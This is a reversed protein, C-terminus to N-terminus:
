IVKGTEPDRRQINVSVKSLGIGCVGVSINESLIQDKLAEDRIRIRTNSTYGGPNITKSDYEATYNSIDIEYIKKDTTGLFYKDSYRNPNIPVKGLNKIYISLWVDDAKEKVSATIQCTMQDNTGGWFVKKELQPEPKKPQLLAMQRNYEAMYTQCGSFILTLLTLTLIKGIM